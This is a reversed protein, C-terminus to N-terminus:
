DNQNRENLFVQVIESGLLSERSLKQSTEGLPLSSGEVISLVSILM